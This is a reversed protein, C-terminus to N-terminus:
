QHPLKHSETAEFTKVKRGECSLEMVTGTIRSASEIAQEDDIAEFEEVGQFHGEEVFYLRYYAM